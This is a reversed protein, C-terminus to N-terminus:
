QQLWGIEQATEKGIVCVDLNDPMVNENASLALHGAM